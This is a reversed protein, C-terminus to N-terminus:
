LTRRDGGYAGQDEQYLPQHNNDDEQDFTDSEM